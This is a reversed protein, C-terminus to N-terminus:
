TQRNVWTPSGLLEATLGSTSLAFGKIEPAAARLGRDMKVRGAAKEGTGWDGNETDPVGAATRGPDYPGGHPCGVLIARDFGMLRAMFAACVGSGVLRRYADPWMTLGAARAYGTERKLPTTHLDFRRRGWQREVDPAIREVLIQAHNGFLIEPEAVLGGWNVGIITADPEHREALAFEERVTAGSGVILATRM